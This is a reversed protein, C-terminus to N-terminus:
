SIVIAEALLPEFGDRQMWLYFSGADLLLTVEGNSDTTLPGAIVNSGAEDTAVWVSAGEIPNGGATIGVTRTLAGPGTLSGSPTEELANETFRFSGADDELTDDLKDTTVKIADVVTDVTALAAATALGSQIEATVDAAVKAATIADSALKAATIAGDALGYGTKDNNATLADATKVGEVKNTAPDYGADAFDKLDISSQSDGEIEQLDVQLLDSGGVLADYVNAPLVMFERWVPLAGAEHIAVILAGLTDTDTTSLAVEYWGNEEHSLTQAASKQAWAGGDKKLRIDPQTITLGTEATKGDTEDLFPGMAIDVAASQKLWSTM